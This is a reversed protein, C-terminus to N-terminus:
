IKQYVMLFLIRIVARHLGLRFRGTPSLVYWLQDNLFGGSTLEWVERFSAGSM